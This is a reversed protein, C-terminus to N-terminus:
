NATAANGEGIKPILNTIVADADANSAQVHDNIAHLLRAFPDNLHLVVANDPNKGVIASSYAAGIGAVNRALELAKDLDPADDFLQHLDRYIARTKALWTRAPAKKTPKTKTKKRAM